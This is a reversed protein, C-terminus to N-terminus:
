EATLRQCLALEEPTLAIRLDITLDPDDVSLYGHGRYPRSLVKRMMAALLEDDTM